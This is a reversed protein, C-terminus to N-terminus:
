VKSVEKEYRGLEIKLLERLERTLISRKQGPFTYRARSELLNYKDTGLQKIKFERYEGQKDHEWKEHCGYCLADCNEPDFRTGWCQRSWFHSNHFGTSKIDNLSGCRQCRCKDRLKIIKSFLRDEILIKM